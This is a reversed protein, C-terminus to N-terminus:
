DDSTTFDSSNWKKLQRIYDVHLRLKPNTPHRLRELMCNHEKNGCRMQQQFQIQQFKTFLYRGRIDPGEQRLRRERNPYALKVISAFISDTAGVAPLQFSDDLLIVALGGFPSVTAMIQQLRNDIIGLMKAHINSIEDVIIGIITDTKLRLRIRNLGDTTLKPQFQNSHIDLTFGFSSHVTRGDPLNTAAIGTPAMCAFTYGAAEAKEVLM